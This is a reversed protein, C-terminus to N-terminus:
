TVPPFPHGQGPITEYGTTFFTFTQTYSRVCWSRASLTHSRVRPSRAALTHSRVRSTRAAQTHSRVRLLPAGHGENVHVAHSIERAAYYAFQLWADAGEFTQLDFWTGVAVMSLECYKLVEAM